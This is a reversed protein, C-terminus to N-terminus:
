SLPFRKEHRQCFDLRWRSATADRCELAELINRHDQMIAQTKGKVPLNLHRLCGIHGSQKRM